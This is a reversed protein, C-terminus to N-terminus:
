SPPSGNHFPFFYGPLTMEFGAFARSLLDRRHTSVSLNLNRTRSFCPESHCQKYTWAMLAVPTDWVPLSCRSASILGHYARCEQRALWSHNPMFSQGTIEHGGASSPMLAHCGARSSHSTPSFVRGVPALLHFDLRTGSSPRM